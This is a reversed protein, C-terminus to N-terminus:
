VHYDCAQAVCFGFDILTRPLTLIGECHMHCSALWENMQKTKRLQFLNGGAQKNQYTKPILHFM